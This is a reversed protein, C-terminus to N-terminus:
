GRGLPRVVATSDYRLDIEGVRRRRAALDALVLALRRQRDEWDGDGMLCRVGDHTLLVPQSPDELQVASVESGVDPDLPLLEGLRGNPLDLVMRRGGGAAEARAAVGRIEPLGLNEAALPADCPALAGDSAVRWWRGAGDRWLGVPRGTAAQLPLANLAAADKAKQAADRADKQDPTEQAPVSFLASWDARLAGAKQWPRLALAAWALGGAILLARGLGKRGRPLHSEGAGIAQM